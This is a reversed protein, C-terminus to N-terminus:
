KSNSLENKDKREAKKIIRDYEDGCYTCYGFNPTLCVPCEVCDDPLYASHSPIHRATLKEYWILWAREAKTLRAWWNKTRRM